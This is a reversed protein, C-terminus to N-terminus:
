GDSRMQRVYEDPDEIDDFCHGFEERLGRFVETIPIQDLIRFAHVKFDLLDGTASSWTARGSFVATRYLHEGLRCALKKGVKCCITQGSSTKIKAVPPAGGVRSIEGSIETFGSFDVFKGSSDSAIRLFERKADGLESFVVDSRTEKAFKRLEEVAAVVKPSQGPQDIRAIAEMAQTLAVASTALISFVFTLSGKQVSGLRVEVEPFGSVSHHIAGFAARLVTELQHFGVTDPAEIGGSFVIEVLKKEM